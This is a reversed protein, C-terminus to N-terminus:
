NGENTQKRISNRYDTYSVEKFKEIHIKQLQFLYFLSMDWVYSEAETGKYNDAIGYFVAIAKDWFDDKSTNATIRPKFEKWLEGSAKTVLEIYEKM